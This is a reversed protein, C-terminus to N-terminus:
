GGAYVNSSGTSPHGCSALDGERCVNIKNAFVTSSCGVMVPAAHPGGGHPTVKDGKRVVGHGNVFVNFSSSALSAGASDINLRTIGPM